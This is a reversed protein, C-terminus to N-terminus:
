NEAIEYRAKTVRKCMDELTTKELINAIADRVDSMVFKLGCTNENPCDCSEYAM